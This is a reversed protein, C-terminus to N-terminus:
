IAGERQLESVLNRTESESISRERAKTVIESMQIAQGQRQNKLSVIINKVASKNDTRPSDSRHQPSPQSYSSSYAHSSNSRNGGMSRSEKREGFDSMTLASMDVDPARERPRQSQIPQQPPIRLQPQQQIQQPPQLSQPQQLQPQMPQVQQAPKEPQKIEEKIEKPPEKESLSEAEEEMDEGLDDEDYLDPNERRKIADELIAIAHRLEEIEETETNISIKM